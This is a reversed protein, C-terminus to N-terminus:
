KKKELEKKAKIADCFTTKDENHRLFYRQIASSGVLYKMVALCVFYGHIMMLIYFILICIKM